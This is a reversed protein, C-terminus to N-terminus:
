LLTINITNNEGKLSAIHNGPCEPDAFRAHNKMWGPQIFLVLLGAHALKARQAFRAVRFGYQWANEKIM